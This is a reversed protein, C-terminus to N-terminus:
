VVSKRDTNGLNLGPLDYAYTTSSLGIISVTAVTRLISKPM